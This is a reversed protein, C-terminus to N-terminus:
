GLVVRAWVQDAPGAGPITLQAPNGPQFQYASAHLMLGNQVVFLVGLAPATLSLSVTGNSDPSRLATEVTNALLDPGIGYVIENVLSRTYHKNLLPAYFQVNALPQDFRVNNVWGHFKVNEVSGLFGVTQLGEKAELTSFGPFLCCVKTISSSANAALVVSFPFLCGAVSHGTTSGSFSEASTDTVMDLNVQGMYYDRLRLCTNRLLNIKVDYLFVGEPMVPLVRFDEAGGVVVNMGPFAEDYYTQDPSVGIYDLAEGSINAPHAVGWRVVRAYRWDDGGISVERAPISRKQITFPNAITFAYSVEYPAPFDSLRVPLPTFLRNNAADVEVVGPATAQYGSGDRIQVSVQGPLSNKALLASLEPSIAFCYRNSFDNSEDYNLTCSEKGDTYLPLGRELYVVEGPYTESQAEETFGSGYENVTLVLVEPTVTSLDLGNVEGGAVPTGQVSILKSHQIPIRSIFDTLRYRTGSAGLAYTDFLTALEATTIAIPAALEPEPTPGTTLRLLGGTVQATVNGGGENIATTLKALTLNELEGAYPRVNYYTGAETEVPLFTNSGADYTLTAAVEMGLQQDLLLLQATGNQYLQQTAEPTLTVLQSSANSDTVHLSLGVTVPAPPPTPTPAADDAGSIAQWTGDALERAFDSSTFPRAVRSSLTYLLSNHIVVILGNGYVGPEYPCVMSGQQITRPYDGGLGRLGKFPTQENGIKISKIPAGTAATAFAVAVEGRGLVPNADNFDQESDERLVVRQYTSM